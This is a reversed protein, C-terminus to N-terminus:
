NKRSKRRSSVALGILGAGLLLLTGPEPVTYPVSAQSSTGGGMNTITAHITTTKGWVITAGEEFSVQITTNDALTFYDPSSDGWTLKGGSIIGFLSFYKGTGTGVAPDVEPETFALTAEVTFDGFSFSKATLTFFDIEQSAGTYNGLEFTSPGIALAPSLNAWRSNNIVSVSSEGVNIEFPIAYASVAFSTVMAAVAIAVFTKKM